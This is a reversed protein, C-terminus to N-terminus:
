KKRWYEKHKKITESSQRCSHYGEISHFSIKFFNSMDYNDYDSVELEMQDGCCGIDMSFCIETEPDLNNEEIEKLLDKIKM